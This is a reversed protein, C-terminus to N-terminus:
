SAKWAAHKRQLSPQRVQLRPLLSSGTQEFMPIAHWGASTFHM